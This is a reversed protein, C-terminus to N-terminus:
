PQWDAQATASCRELRKAFILFDARLAITAFLPTKWLGFCCVSLEVCDNRITLIQQITYSSLGVTDNDLSLLRPFRMPSPSAELM